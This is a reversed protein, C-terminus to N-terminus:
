RKWRPENITGGGGGGGGATTYEIRIVGDRYKEVIRQQLEDLEAICGVITIMHREAEVHTDTIRGELTAYYARLPQGESPEEPSQGIFTHEGLLIKFEEDPVFNNLYIIRYDLKSNNEAM